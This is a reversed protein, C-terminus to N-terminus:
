RKWRSAAAKKAIDVRRKKSLAQAGAGEGGSVWCSRLRTRATTPRFSAAKKGTAARM